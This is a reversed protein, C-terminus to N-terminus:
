KILDLGAETIRCEKPIIESLKLGPYKPFNVKEAIPLTKFLYSHNISVKWGPWIEDTPTGLIRFIHDIHEM